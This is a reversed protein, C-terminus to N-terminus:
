ILGIDAWKLRLCSFAAGRVHMHGRLDLEFRDFRHFNLRFTVYRLARVGLLRPRWPAWGRRPRRGRRSSGDRWRCAPGCLAPGRRGRRRACRDVVSALLIREPRISSPRALSGWSQPGSVKLPSRNRMRLCRLFPHNSGFGHTPTCPPSPRWASALTHTNLFLVSGATLAEDTVAGDPDAGIAAAARAARRAGALLVILQGRGDQYDNADTGCGGCSMPRGLERGGERQCPALFTSLQIRTIDFLPSLCPDSCRLGAAATPIDLLEALRTLTEPPPSRLNSRGRGYRNM